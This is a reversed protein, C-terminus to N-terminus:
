SLENLEWAIRGPSGKREGSFVVRSEVQCRWGRYRYRGEPRKRVARVVSRASGCSIKSGTVSVASNGVAGCYRPVAARTSADGVVLTLLVVTLALALRSVVAYRPELLRM